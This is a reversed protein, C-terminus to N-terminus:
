YYKLKKINIWLLNTKLCIDRINGESFNLLDKHSNAWFNSCILILFIIYLNELIQIFLIVLLHPRFM